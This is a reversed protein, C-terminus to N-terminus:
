NSLVKKYFSITKAAVEDCHYRAIAFEKAKKGIQVVLQDNNYLSQLIKYLSNSDSLNFLFGNKQDEIMEPIGGVASSVVVKGAAMNEAIVMPLTEQFSPIVLINSNSIFNIADDQNVWGRFHVHNKLQSKNMYDEVLNEYEKDKFGGLVNLTFFINEDQLCSLTQLLHILNKRNNIVGIYLLQNKTNESVPINFYAPRLANPILAANNIRKSFHKSQSSASIYIINKIPLLENILGNFWFTLKDKTSTKTKLEEFAFAHITLISKVHLTGFLRTFMLTNGTQFHLIDPNFERINKKLISPGKFLYNLSHFPFPGEPEYVIEISDSYKYIQRNNIESNFSLVRVAIENSLFGHLLNSVAAHVGGKISNIDLPFGPLVILVKLNNTTKLKM